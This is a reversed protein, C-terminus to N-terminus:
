VVNISGSVGVPYFGGVYTGTTTNAYLAALVQSFSRAFAFGAPTNGTTNASGATAFFGQYVSPSSSPDIVPGAAALAPVSFSTSSATPAASLTISYPSTSNISTITTGTPIGTGIVVQKVALGTISAVNVTTNGSTVTATFAALDIPVVEDPDSTAITATFSGAGTVPQSITIAGQGITLTVAAPSSLTSLTPSSLVQGGSIIPEMAPTTISTQAVCTIIEATTVTTGNSFTTIAAASMTITNPAITTITTNNPIGTVGGSILLAQGVALGAITSVNSLTASGSTIDCLFSSPTFTATANASMTVTFPAANGINTITTGTPIGVGALVQGIVLGTVGGGYGTTVNTLVNSNLTTIANFTVPTPTSTAAKSMTISYPATPSITSITAGSTIGTGTITQGVIMGSTNQVNAIVASGSTLTGTTTVQSSATSAQSMTVTTGSISSILTGSTIGTGTLPQGVALGSVSSVSTIAATGTTLLIGNFTISTSSPSSATAYVPTGTSGTSTGMTINAGINTIVANAPIGTGTVPQGVALGTSSSLNTINASSVTLTGVFTISGTASANVPTGTATSMTITNGTASTAVSNIVTGTPIAGLVQGAVATTAATIYQGITLGSLSSVGTITPNGSTLYGTLAVATPTATAATSINITTGSPAPTAIYTNPMIYTGTIPQGVLLGAISSVNTVQTSGKLLVGTPTANAAPTIKTIAAGNPINAGTIISGVVASTTPLIAYLLNSGATAAVQFTSQYMTGQYIAGTQISALRLAAAHAGDTALAQAAYALNNGTLYSMAGAFATVSLDELMRAQAIAQVGSLTTTASPAAFTANAASTGLLNITQRGAASGGTDALGGLLQQLDIVQNLDDYFMENFMDLFQASITSTTLKVPQNYIQGTSLGPKYTNGNATTYNVPLDAGQTLFSYFTAKLYKINLLFNLVDAQSYGTPIPQQARAGSGSGLGTGAAVGAAGLAAMFHRRNLAVKSVINKLKEVTATPDLVEIDNSSAMENAEKDTSKRYTRLSQTM